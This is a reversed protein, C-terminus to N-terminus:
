GESRGRREETRGGCGAARSQAAGKEGRGKSGQQERGHLIDYCHDCFVGLRLSDDSLYEV